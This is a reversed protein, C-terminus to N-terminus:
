FVYPDRDEAFPDYETEHRSPRRAAQRAHEEAVAKDQRVQEDVVAKEIAALNAQAERLATPDRKVIAVQQATVQGDRMEDLARTIENEGM